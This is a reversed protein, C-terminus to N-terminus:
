DARVAYIHWSRPRGHPSEIPPTDAPTFRESCGLGRRDTIILRGLRALERLFRSLAPHEWNLDVNSVYGQLYVLDIPGEGLVHYALAIDGNWAYRTRPVDVPLDQRSVM